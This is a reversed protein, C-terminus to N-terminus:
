IPKMIARLPENVLEMRMKKMARAIRLISFEVVFHRAFNCAAM